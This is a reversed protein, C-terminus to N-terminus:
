SVLKYKKYTNRLIFNDSKQTIFFANFYKCNKPYINKDLVSSTNQKNCNVKMIINLKVGKANSRSYNFTLKSTM